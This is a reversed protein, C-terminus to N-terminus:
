QPGVTVGNFARPHQVFRPASGFFRALDPGDSGIEDHGAM